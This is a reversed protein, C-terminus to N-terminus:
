LMVYKKHKSTKKYFASGATLIFIWSCIFSYRAQRETLLYFGIFGLLILYLFILNSNKYGKLKTVGKISLLLLFIYYISNITYVIPTLVSITLSSLAVGPNNVITWEYAGFDGIGWQLFLKKFYFVVIKSLNNESFRSKIIEVARKKMLENDYNSKEPILSDYESWAGISDINTGKLINMIVPEGTNWLQNELVGNNYLINSFVIKPALFSILLTIIYLFKLISKERTLIIKKYIYYLIYAIFFIIGVPRFLDGIGLFIGSFFLLLVDNGDIYQIFFYISILFLPIAMNESMIESCYMIFPPFLTMLLATIRGIKGNYMKKGILYIMYVCFTQYIVNIFKILFLPNKIVKFFLSIYMVTAMDHPFRAFYNNEYFSSYNGNAVEIGTDYMLKFDSTPLTNVLFIWVMRIIFALLLIYIIKKSKKLNKKIKQM